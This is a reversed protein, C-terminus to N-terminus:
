RLLDENLREVHASERASQNESKEETFDHIGVVGGLGSALMALAMAVILLAIVLEVM